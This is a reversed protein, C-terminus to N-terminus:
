APKKLVAIFMSDAKIGIGNILESREVILGTQKVLHEVVHENEEKFVSCTIYYLKGGPKLLDTANVSIDRQRSAYEVLTKAKFFHMQEPTRAWTGSGTCPVDCIINDFERNRMVDHLEESNAVDVKFTTPFIHSYLRFREKLNNLITKRTDSVTLEVLPEKDKLLLSKGGAGSCCDWWNEYPKPTFYEATKQSSADQVVYVFPPIMKDIPTGNPLAICDNTIESYPINEQELLALVREHEKRLRIFLDPQVLMNNLWDTKNIGTSLEIDHPFIRDIDVKLKDANAPPYYPEILRLLHKNETRCLHICATMRENFPLTKDVAKEARYWCYAMESLMKRDRSGLKPHQKYYGKLFYPLPHAGTYEQIITDIHQWIFQM